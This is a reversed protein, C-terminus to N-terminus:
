RTVAATMATTGDCRMAEVTEGKDVLQVPQGVFLPAVARFQFSRLAGRQAALLSLKVATFPGHVVLDPYGEEERAYAQDYHIRHSNFTVASFRFLDTPLPTWADAPPAGSPVVAPVGGGAERYVITQRERVCDQGRQRVVGDVEVFILDGAKGPRHRVEAITSQREAEVGVALAALFHLEGAAWMRRPLRVAPLFDGRLPHGDPGIRGRAVTPLFYAWHWLPPVADRQADPEEGIAAAFRRLSDRDLLQREVQQRGVAARYAEVEAATIPGSVEV